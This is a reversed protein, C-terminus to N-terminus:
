TVSTGLPSYISLSYMWLNSTLSMKMQKRISYFWMGKKDQCFRLVLVKLPLREKEELLIYPCKRRLFQKMFNGLSYFNEQSKVWAWQPHLYQRDDRSLCKRAWTQSMPYVWQAQLTFSNIFLHAVLCMLTIWLRMRLLLATASIIGLIGGTEM